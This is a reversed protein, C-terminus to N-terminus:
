RTSVAWFLLGIIVVVAVLMFHFTSTLNPLKTAIMICGRSGLIHWLTGSNPLYPLCVLAHGLDGPTPYWIRKMAVFLLLFNQTGSMSKWEWVSPIALPHLSHM